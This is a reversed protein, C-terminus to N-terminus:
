VEVKVMKRMWLAGGVIMLVAFGLMGLGLTTTYLPAV